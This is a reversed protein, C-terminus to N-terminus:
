SVPVVSPVGGQGLHERRCDSPLRPGWWFLHTEKRREMDLCISINLNLRFIISPNM